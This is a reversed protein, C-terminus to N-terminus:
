HAEMDEEIDEISSFMEEWCKAHTGSIMLERDEKPMLPFVNQIHEQNLFLRKYDEYNLGFQSEEGCHFCNRKFGYINETIMYVNARM